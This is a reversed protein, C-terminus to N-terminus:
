EEERQWPTVHHYACCQEWVRVMGCARCKQLLTRPTHARGVQVHPAVHPALPLRSLTVPLHPECELRQPLGRVLRDIRAANNM